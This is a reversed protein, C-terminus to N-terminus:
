TYSGFALAVPRKGRFSSLKVRENTGLRKLHFDYAMEGVKPGMEDWEMMSEVAIRIEKKEPFVIKGSALAQRMSLEGSPSAKMEAHIARMVNRYMTQQEQTFQSMMADRDDKNMLM